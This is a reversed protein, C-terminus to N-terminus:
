ATPGGPYETVNELVALIYHKMGKDEGTPVSVTRMLSVTGYYGKGKKYTGTAKQATEGFTCIKNQLGPIQVPVEAPDNQGTIVGGQTVILRDFGQLYRRKENVEKKAENGNSVTVDIKLVMVPDAQEIDPVTVFDKIENRAFLKDDHYVITAWGNLNKTGQLLIYKEDDDEQWCKGEEFFFREGNIDTAM